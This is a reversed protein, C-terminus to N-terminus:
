FNYSVALSFSAGAKRIFTDTDGIRIKGKGDPTDEYYGEEYKQSFGDKWAYVDSWEKMTMSNSGPKIQYTNKGNIFFRYPSNTLNSINLRVQLKKDKLFKYSLQADVQDRPREMESYHPQMGVTFTKYGSHNFAINAGLREGAYQLGINYLVPVQGYLPRKERLYTKTRYAYSIGDNDKGGGMTEYRFASAQVESNQITLNGSFYLDDLFKARKYIFGLSKRLDLEWGTVDAYDSNATLLDVAGSTNTIDLYMEVPNKFHKKFYGASIVEGPAPYWELRLDYHTILTSVVGTNRQIRGYLYNFRAFSSNEILAPRIASQAYSARVNFNSFPTITLNGSPLYLWKKDEAGADLTAHVLKGTEPDVFRTRDWNDLNAQSTKDAAEDLIKEYEYYEARIGWVLRLWTTFRNDMMAYVAQNNNRGAYSNNNFAAPFYYMDNLPDAFDISWQHIPKHGDNFGRAVGIPLVSWDYRGKKELYQYGTKFVQPLKGINFRYSLAADAAWNTEVYRYSSRSLTGPNASVGPQPMYNYSFGNVTAVPGLYADVADLEHNTVENRAASWDFKFRGFNHEGNIRNQLLDIFKPRDYENIAPHEDFGIDEGWGTIRFFQNAFVRSYFNRSTVQHNKGHWGGNLLAGWSTTFNYQGAKTENIEEGTKLDYLNNGVKSFAGREFHLIDDIAQENRYSLSGVLGVRGNRLNYSRGLSFQYNQGPAAKHTRTGLRELGGIRKNQAAVMEPTIKEVGAPPIHNYPNAPDYNGPTFTMIEKPFRDRGGDDFGLYDSKGRQYGQFDRGTSGSIYKGGFGVTMFNNNPVAMTNIQVMGGGFGFGMDPTATKSVIINDVLNSPVIDFEFDRVQVDTSPLAAGDMMAINYREAIGRVVVRRNDTTSVGSIRKLTEGINKDPLVAMQERSIGNIIGADNKQRLYLAAASEKRVSSKVVVMALNGKKRKLTANLTFTESENITVGSVEKSGYGMSSIMVTYNGGPLPLSFNGSDDTVSGAAGIRITAGIVAEGNEEDIVRGAIRGPDKKAPAPVANEKEFLVIGGAVEKYGVNTKQLLYHLIESLDAQKFEKPSINWKALGLKGADYAVNVPSAEKLQQMAVDLAVNAFRISLKVTGPSQAKLGSAALMLCCLTLMLRLQTSVLTGKVKKEM